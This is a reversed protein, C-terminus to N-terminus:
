IAIIFLVLLHKKPPFFELCPGLHIETFLYEDRILVFFYIDTFSESVVLIYLIHYMFMQLIFNQFGWWYVIVIFAPGDFRSDVNRRRFNAPNKVCSVAEYQWLMRADRKERCTWIGM